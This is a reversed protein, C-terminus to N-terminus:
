VESSIEEDSSLEDEVTERDRSEDPQALQLTPVNSCQLTMTAIYRRAGPNAEHCFDATAGEFYGFPVLRMKYFVKETYRRKTSGLKLHVSSAYRWPVPKCEMRVGSVYRRPIGHNTPLPASMVIEEAQSRRCLRHLTLPSHSLKHQSYYSAPM